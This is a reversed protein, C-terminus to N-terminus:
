LNSSGAIKCYLVDVVEDVGAEAKGEGEVLGKCKSQGGSWKLQEAVGEAQREVRVSYSAWRDAVAVAAAIGRRGRNWGSLVM